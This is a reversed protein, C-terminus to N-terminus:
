FPFFVPVLWTVLLWYILTMPGGVRLYDFFRYGGPGYVLLNTQYGIPTYFAASAAFTLGILFPRPDVDLALSLQIALPALLAATATNSMLGTLTATLLVFLGLAFHPGHNGGVSLLLRAAEAALGTKELAVGLPILGALLVIVVWDIERYVRRVPLCGTLVMVVAGVIATTVIPYLGLAAVAVVAVIILAALVAHLPNLRRLDLEQLVLFAKQQRLKSFSTRPALVLLEDGLRLRIHGIKELIDQGGRRIALATAGFTNRFDVEKLTRAELESHSTIVAEFLVQDASSLDSDDHKKRPRVSVGARDRLRVLTSAAAQVLLIDGARMEGYGEGAGRMVKDRIHGLVELGYHAGLEAEVVTKGILPSEDLVEIETLYRNLHHGETLSEAQVRVPVTRRGIVVLYFGCVVLVIVGISSFEFMAFPPYGHNQVTSSVLINTSTGVLTCTGGLMAFFSMPMMVQSPSIGHAQCARLALPLFIAVAATNNIFASFPAVAVGTLLILATPSDPGYRLLKDGLVQIVGSSSLGASIVFMAAVTVTAPNSFGALAETPDLIRSLVLSALVIMAVVDARLRETALLITAGALVIILIWADV